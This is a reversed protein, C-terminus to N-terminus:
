RPYVAVGHGVMPLPLQGLRFKAKTRAGPVEFNFSRLSSSMVFDFPKQTGSDPYTKNSISHSGFAEGQFYTWRSNLNEWQWGRIVLLETTAGSKEFSSM